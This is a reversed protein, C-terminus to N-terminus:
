PFIFHSQYILIFEGGLELKFKNNRLNNCISVFFRYVNASIIVIVIENGLVLIIIMSVKYGTKAISTVREVISKEYHSHLYHKLGLASCAEPYWTGGDTYIPHKEYRSVLSETFKGAVLM